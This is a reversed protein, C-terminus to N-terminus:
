RGHKGERQPRDDSGGQTDAALSMGTAVQWGGPRLVGDRRSDM